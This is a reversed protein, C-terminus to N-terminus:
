PSVGGLRACPEDTTLHLVTDTDRPRCCEERILRGDQDEEGDWDIQCVHEDQHDEALSCGHSGWYAACGRVITVEAPDFWLVENGLGAQTAAVKERHTECTLGYIPRGDPDPWRWGGGSTIIQHAAVAPRPERRPCFGCM